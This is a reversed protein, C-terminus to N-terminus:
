RAEADTTSTVTQNSFVPNQPVIPPPEEEGLPCPVCDATVQGDFM